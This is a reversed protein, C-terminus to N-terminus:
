KTTGKLDNTPQQPKRVHTCNPQFDLMTLSGYQETRHARLAFKRDFHAM